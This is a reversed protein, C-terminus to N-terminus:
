LMSVDIVKSSKENYVLGYFSSLNVISTQMIFFRFVFLRVIVGQLFFLERGSERGAYGHGHVHRAAGQHVDGVQHHGRAEGRHRGVDAKSCSHGHHYGALHDHWDFLSHFPLIFPTIRPNNLLVSPCFYKHLHLISGKLRKKCDSENVLLVNYM